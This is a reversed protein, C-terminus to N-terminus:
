QNEESEELLSDQICRSNLYEYVCQATAIKFAHINFHTSNKFNMCAKEGDRTRFRLDILIQELLDCISETNMDKVYPLVADFARKHAIEVAELLVSKDYHTFGVKIEENGRIKYTKLLQQVEPLTSKLEKGFGWSLLLNSRDPITLSKYLIQHASQYCEDLSERTEKSLLMKIPTTSPLVNEILLRVFQQNLEHSLQNDNYLRDAKPKLFLEFDLAADDSLTRDEGKEFRETGVTSVIKAFTMGYIVNILDDLTPYNNTKYKAISTKFANLISELTNNDLLDLWKKLSQLRLRTLEEVIDNYLSVPYTIGAVTFSNESKQNIRPNVMLHKIVVLPLQGDDDLLENGLFRIQQAINSGAFYIRDTRDRLQLEYGLSNLKATNFVIDRIFLNCRHTQWLEKDFDSQDSLQKKFLNM